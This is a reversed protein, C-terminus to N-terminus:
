GVWQEMHYKNYVKAWCELYFSYKLIIRLFTKNNRLLFMHHSGEKSTRIIPGLTHKQLSVLLNDWNFRIQLVATLFCEKPKHLTLSVQAVVSAYNKFLAIESQPLINLSCFM